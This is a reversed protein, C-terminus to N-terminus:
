PAPKGQLTKHAEEREFKAILAELMKAHRAIGSMVHGLDRGWPECHYTDLFEAIAGLAELFRCGDARTQPFSCQDNIRVHRWRSGPPEVYNSEVDNWNEVAHVTVHRTDTDDFVSVWWTGPRAASGM